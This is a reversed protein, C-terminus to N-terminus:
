NAAEDIIELSRIVASATKDCIRFERLDLYLVFEEAKDMADFIDRLYDHVLRPRKM